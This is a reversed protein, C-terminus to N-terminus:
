DYEVSIYETEKEELSKAFDRIDKSSFITKIAVTYGKEELRATLEIAKLSDGGIDFFNDTVSVKEVDLVKEIAQTVIKEESTEPAIYETETNISNLDIEQSSIINNFRTLFSIQPAYQEDYGTYSISSGSNFSIRCCRM